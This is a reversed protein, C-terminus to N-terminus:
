VLAKKSWPGTVQLIRYNANRQRNKKPSNDPLCRIHRIIDVGTSSSDTVVSSTYVPQPLRPTLITPPM